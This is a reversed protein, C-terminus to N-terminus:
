MSDSAAVMRGPREDVGHDKWPMFVGVSDCFSWSVEWVHKIRFVKMTNLLVTNRMNRLGSECDALRSELGSWGLRTQFVKWQIM